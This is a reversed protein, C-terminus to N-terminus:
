HMYFFCAFMPLAVIVNGAKVEVNQINEGNANELSAEVISVLFDQSESMEESSDFIIELLTGEVIAQPSDLEISVTGISGQVESLSEVVANLILGETEVVPSRIEAFSMVTLPFQVKLRMHRVDQDELGDVEIPIAVARGAEGVTDRVSIIPNKSEQGSMPVSFLTLIVAVLCTKLWRHTLIKSFAM